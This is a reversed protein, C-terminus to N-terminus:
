LGLCRASSISPALSPLASDQGKGIYSNCAKLATPHRLGAHIDCHPRVQEGWTIQAPVLGAHAASCLRCVELGGPDASYVPGSLAPCASPLSRAKAESPRLNARARQWCSTGLEPSM